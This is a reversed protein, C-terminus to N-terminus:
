RVTVRVAGDGAGKSSLVYTGPALRYHTVLHQHAGLTQLYLSDEYGGGFRLLQRDSFVGGYRIITVTQPGASPNKVLLWGSWPLTM